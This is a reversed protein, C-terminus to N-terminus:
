SESSESSQSDKIQKMMMGSVMLDIGAEVCYIGILIGITLAMVAPHVFSYIGIVTSLIGIIIGLIWWKNTAKTQIALVFALIGRFVFWFAAFYLIMGDLMLTTGPRLLAMIGVIVALVSIITDFIHNKKQFAKVIGAIGYVLMIIGLFYGASLFTIVPTCMLSIGTFIMLIGLIFSVVIM